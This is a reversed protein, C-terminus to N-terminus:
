KMSLIIETKCKSKKLKDRITSGSWGSTEFGQSLVLRLTMREFRIGGEVMAGNGLPSSEKWKEHCLSAPHTNVLIHRNVTHM